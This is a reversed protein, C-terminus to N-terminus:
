VFTNGPKSSFGSGYGHGSADSRITQGEWVVAEGDPVIAPVVEELEKLKVIEEAEIEAASLRRARMTRLASQLSIRDRLFYLGRRTADDGEFGADEMRNIADATKHASQSRAYGVVLINWTVQDPTVGRSNMMDLVKEAARHQQHDLFVKLLISWTWKSPEPRESSKYLTSSQSMSMKDQAQQALTQHTEESAVERSITRKQNESVRADPRNVAPGSGTNAVEIGLSHTAHTSTSTTKRESQSVPALMDAIVRTCLHMTERFRGLAIIVVNYIRDDVALESMLPHGRSVLARFTDYLQPAVDPKTSSSLYATIMVLLTAKSPQLLGPVQAGVVLRNQQAIASNQLLEALPGIDFYARYTPLMRSFPTASSHEITSEDKIDELTTQYITHLLDTGIHADVIGSNSIANVIREITLRDMRVKADNLLISYTHRSPSIGVDKMMEFIRWGTEANGAKLANHILINYIFIDPILGFELLLAFLESDSITAEAVRWRHDLLSACAKVVVPKTFDTGIAHLHRMISVAIEISGSKTFRSAFQLLTNEHFTVNRAALDAYFAELANTDMNSMLKYITKQTLQLPGNGKESIIDDIRSVWILGTRPDMHDQRACVYSVMYEAIDTIMYSPSYPHIYTAEIIDLTKFPFYRMMALMVHPWLSTRREPSFNEEWALCADRVSAQRLLGEAVQKGEVSLAPTSDDSAFKTTLTSRRTIEHYDQNLDAFGTAWASSYAELQAGKKLTLCIHRPRVARHPRSRRTCPQSFLRHRHDVIRVMGSRRRVKQRGIPDPIPEPGALLLRRSAPYLRQGSFLQTYRAEKSQDRAEETGVALLGRRKNCDKVPIRKVLASMSSLQEPSGTSEMGGDFDTGHRQGPACVTELSLRRQENYSTVPTTVSDHHDHPRAQASRSHTGRKRRLSLQKTPRGTDLTTARLNGSRSHSSPQENEDSPGLQPRDPQIRSMYEEPVKVWLDHHLAEFAEDGVPEHAARSVTTGIRRLAEQTTTRGSRPM